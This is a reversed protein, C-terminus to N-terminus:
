EEVVGNPNGPVGIVELGDLVLDAFQGFEFPSDFGQVLVKFRRLLNRSSLGSACFDKSQATNM